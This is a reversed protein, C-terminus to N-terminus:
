MFFIGGYNMGTCWELFYDVGNQKVGLVATSEYTM